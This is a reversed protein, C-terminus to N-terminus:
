VGGDAAAQRHPFVVTNSRLKAVFRHMHPDARHVPVEALPFWQVANFESEDYKLPQERNAQVVYWLTVDTHGATLGVTSTCTIMLPTGIAHTAVFGLEEKLERVVTSRPHEHPEVHGGAPLWLMANKHDVLLIQLGDVVAFYSVLHKPPTSPKTVRFLPAGSDVWALAEAQHESELMDFPKIAEIERRIQDRMQLNSYSAAFRLKPLRWYLIASAPKLQSSASKM